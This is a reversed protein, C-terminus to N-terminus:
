VWLTVITTWRSFYVRELSLLSESVLVNEKWFMNQLFYSRYEELQLYFPKLCANHSTKDSTLFLSHDCFINIEKKTKEEGQNLTKLM